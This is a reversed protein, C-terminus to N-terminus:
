QIGPPLPDPVLQGLTHEATNRFVSRGFAEAIVVAGYQPAIIYDFRIQDRGQSTTITQDAEILWGEVLDGCADIRARTSVHAQHLVTTGSRPDVATSSFNEGSVVPLPLYLIGTPPRFAAYEPVENGNIDFVETSKLVLGGEPERARPVPVLGEGAPQRQSQGAINVEFTSVLFHQGFPQVTQYRYRTDTLPEYRRLARREVVQREEVIEGAGDLERLVGNWRYIGEQPTDTDGVNVEAARRPTATPSATPCETLAEGPPTVLFSFLSRRDGATSFPPPPERLSRLQAQAPTPAAPTEDAVGFTLNANVSDVAVGRQGPSVCAATALVCVVPLLLRRRM